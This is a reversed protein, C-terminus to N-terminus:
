RSLCYSCRHGTHSPEGPFRFRCPTHTGGKLSTGGRQVGLRDARTHMGDGQGGPTDLSLSHHQRQGSPPPLQVDPLVGPVGRASKEEEAPEPHPAGRPGYIRAPPSPLSVPTPAKTDPGSRTYRSGATSKGNLSPAGSHM